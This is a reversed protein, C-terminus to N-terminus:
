LLNSTLLCVHFVVASSLLLALDFVVVHSVFQVISRGLPLSLAFSPPKQRVIHWRELLFLCVAGLLLGLTLPWSWHLLVMSWHIRLGAARLVLAVLVFGGGLAAGRAQRTRIHLALFGGLPLLFALVGSSTLLYAAFLTLPFSATHSLWQQLLATTSVVSLVYVLAPLVVRGGRTLQPHTERAWNEAFVPPNPGMVAQLSKGDGVAQVCHQELEMQMEQRCEPEVGRLEWYRACAEVLDAIQQPTNQDLIPM